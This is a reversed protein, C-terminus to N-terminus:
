LLSNLFSPLEPPITSRKHRLVHTLLFFSSPFSNLPILRHSINLALALVLLCSSPNAAIFVEVTPQLSTASHDFAITLVEEISCITASSVIASDFFKSINSLYDYRAKLATFAELAIRSIKFTTRPANSTITTCHHQCRGRRSRPWERRM